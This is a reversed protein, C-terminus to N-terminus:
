SNLGYINILGDMMLNEDYIIKRRCYPLIIKSIGGTAVATVYDGLEEEIRLAFGDLAAATGIVAGSLMSDRTNKGIISAPETLSISPLQATKSALASLSINVGAMISGGIFAGNKDIVSVTNATGLDFIVCPFPYKGIAGAASAILDAGLLSPNDISIKLGSNNENIVVSDIGCIKNVASKIRDTLPPVVSAIVAGCIDSVSVGELSFIHSIEAAYQLTTREKDTALRIVKLLKYDFIGIKINTNGIDIALIM